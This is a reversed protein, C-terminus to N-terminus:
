LEGSDLLDVLDGVEGEFVVLGFEWFLVGVDLGGEFEEVVEDGGEFFSCFVVFQFELVPGFEFVEGFLDGEVSCADLVALAHRGGEFCFDVLLPSGDSDLFGCHPLHSLFEEEEFGVVDFLDQFELGEFLLLPVLAVLFGHLGSFGGPPHFGFDGPPEVDVKVVVVVLESSLFLGGDLREVSGEPLLFLDLM